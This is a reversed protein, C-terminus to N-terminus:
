CVGTGGFGRHLLDHSHENPFLDRRLEELIWVGISTVTSPIYIEKLNKCNLFAEDGVTKLKSPLLLSYLEQYGSCVSDAIATVTYGEVDTPLNLYSITNDDGGIYTATQTARDYRYQKDTPLPPNLTGDSCRVM